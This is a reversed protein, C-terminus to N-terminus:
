SGESSATVTVSFSGNVTPTGSITGTSSDISLGSPLGTASWTYIGTGGSASLTQSYPIGKTADPLSQTTIVVPEPEPEIPEEVSPWFQRAVGAVGIYAAKVKRAVDNVGIYFKSLRRAVGNVGVFGNKTV